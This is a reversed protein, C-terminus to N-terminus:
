SRSRAIFTSKNRRSYGEAKLTLEALCPGKGTQCRECESRLMEHFDPSIRAAFGCYLKVRTM